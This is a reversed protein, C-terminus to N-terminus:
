NTYITPFSPSTLIGCINDATAAIKAYGNLGWSDAWSNKILFYEGATPDTGYGVALV